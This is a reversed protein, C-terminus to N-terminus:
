KVDVKIHETVKGLVPKAITIPTQGSKDAITPAAVTKEATKAVVKATAGSVLKRNYSRKQLQKLTLKDSM